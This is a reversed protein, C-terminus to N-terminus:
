YANPVFCKEFGGLKAKKAEDVEFKYCCGFKTISLLYKGTHKKHQYEYLTCSGWDDNPFYSYKCLACCSRIDYGIEQLLDAKNQDM